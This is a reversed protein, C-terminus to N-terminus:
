DISKPNDAHATASEIYPQMMHNWGSVFAEKILVSVLSSSEVM